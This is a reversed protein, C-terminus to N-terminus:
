VKLDIEEKFAALRDFLELEMREGPCPGQRIEGLDDQGLDHEWNPWVDAAGKMNKLVAQRFHWRLLGDSVRNNPDPPNIANSHLRRGGINQDDFGFYTIKYDDEHLLM